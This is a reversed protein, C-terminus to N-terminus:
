VSNFLQFSSDFDILLRKIYEIKRTDKRVLFLKIERHIETQSSCKIVGVILNQTMMVISM